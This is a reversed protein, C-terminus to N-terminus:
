ILPVEIVLVDAQSEALLTYENGESIGLGDRRELHEGDIKVMGEIVFFYVGHGPKKLEYNLKTGPTLIVRHFWADQHIWLGNTNTSPAVLQQWQNEGLNRVFSHQDYRPTANKTDTEIWIQLLTVPDVKSANYESHRVGSGASMVQVEGTQVTGVTGLSDRHELTGSLVITVIEMNDHQHLGFGAGGAITDDNLVRLAGFNLREPDFYDAFSFTHYTDLWGHNAHGRSQAPHLLHAM